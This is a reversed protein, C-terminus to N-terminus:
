MPDEDSGGLVSGVEIGINSVRDLCFGSADLQRKESAITIKKGFSECFCHLNSVTLYVKWRSGDVNLTREREPRYPSSVIQVCFAGRHTKCHAQESTTVVM